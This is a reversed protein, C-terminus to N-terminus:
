HTAHAFHLQKQLKAVLEEDERITQQLDYIQKM